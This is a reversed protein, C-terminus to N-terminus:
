VYRKKKKKSMDKLAGKLGLKSGVKFMDTSTLIGWPYWM